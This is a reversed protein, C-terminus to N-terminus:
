NSQTNLAMEETEVAGPQGSDQFSLLKVKFLVSPQYTTRLASWVENQQAFPLSTLEVLLMEIDAHLAPATQHNFVRNAQFFAIVGSLNHLSDAYDKFSAVFLVHLNLRIQPQVQEKGGGITARSYLDAPRLTNDQEMNVLVLSVAGMPFSIPDMKEGDPFVAREEPPQDPTWGSTTLLHQNLQNKLFTLAHGIM